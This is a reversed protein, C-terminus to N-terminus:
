ENLFTTNYTFLSHNIIFFSYYLFFFGCLQAVKRKPGGSPIIGICSQQLDDTRAAFSRRVELSFVTWRVTKKVGRVREPNLDRRYKLIAFAFGIGL